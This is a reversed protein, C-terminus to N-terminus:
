SLKKLYKQIANIWNTFNEFEKIRYKKCVIDVNGKRWFGKPCCVAIFKNKQSFLGLELLSIPSKTKPDFYFGIIDADEQANLEWEVQKKFEPNNIDQIGLEKWNDRRPNLIIM